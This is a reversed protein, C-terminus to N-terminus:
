AVADLEAPVPVVDEDEGVPVPVPVPLEDGSVEGDLEDVGGTLDVEVLPAAIPSPAASPTIRIATTTM